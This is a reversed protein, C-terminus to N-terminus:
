EPPARVVLVPCPAHRIVREAVSGLLLHALGTRGLTGMVIVDTDRAEEVIRQVPHGELLRTKVPVNAARASAELQELARTGEARLAETLTEWEIGAPLGMFSAQDVVFIGRLNGGSLKALEIARETAINGRPSGDTPVLIRQFSM